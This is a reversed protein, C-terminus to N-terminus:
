PAPHRRQCLVIYVHGTSRLIPAGSDALHQLLRGLRIGINRPLLACKFVSFPGFGLTSRDLKDFGAGRLWRDVEWNSDLRNLPVQRRYGFRAAMRRAMCKLPTALPNLVPDLVHHLAWLNDTTVILFGGPRLVRFMEALARQPSFVWPIVGVALVLDFMRDPFALAQIDGQRAWVRNGLGAAAARRLTRDIMTPAIDTAHVLYGRSALAVSTLGPGCGMELLRSEAALGLKDIFQLVREHRQRYFRDPRDYIREWYDSTAEFYDGVAKQHSLLKNGEFVM